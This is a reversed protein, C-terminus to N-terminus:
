SSISCRNFAHHNLVTCRIHAFIHASSGATLVPFIPARRSTPPTLESRLRVSNKERQLFRSRWGAIGTYQGVSFIIHFEGEFLWTKLYRLRLEGGWVILPLYVIM